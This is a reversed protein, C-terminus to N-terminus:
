GAPLMQRKSESTVWRHSTMITKHYNDLSFPTLEQPNNVEHCAHYGRQSVNDVSGWFESLLRSELVTLSHHSMQHALEERLIMQFCCSKSQQTQVAVAVELFAGPEESKWHYLHLQICGAIRDVTLWPSLYLNCLLYISFVDSVRLRTQLRAQRLAQRTCSLVLVLQVSFSPSSTSPPLTGGLVFSPM